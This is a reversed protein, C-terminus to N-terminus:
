LKSVIMTFNLTALAVETKGIFVNSLIDLTKITYHVFVILRDNELVPM